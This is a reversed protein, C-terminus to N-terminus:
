AGGAGVAVGLVDDALGQLPAPVVDHEDGLEATRGALALVAVRQGDPSLDADRAFM